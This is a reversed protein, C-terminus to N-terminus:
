FLRRQGYIVEEIIKEIDSEEATECAKIVARKQSESLERWAKFLEPSQHIIYITRNHSM